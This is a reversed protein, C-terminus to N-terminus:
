LLRRRRTVTRLVRLFPLHLKLNSANQATIENLTSYRTSAYDKAPRVWQGDDAELRGAYSSPKYDPETAPKQMLEQAGVSRAVLFLVALTRLRSLSRRVPYSRQLRM